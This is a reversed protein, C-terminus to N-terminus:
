IKLRDVEIGLKEIEEIYAGFIGHVDKHSKGEIIDLISDFIEQKLSFERSVEKITNRRDPSVKIEKIRMLSRFGPLMSKLSDVLLRHLQGANEGVELYSQYLRVLGGKIQQECQLRINDRGINVDKLIDHGYLFINNEKIELFEIPFVDTSRKIHEETLMLPAVIGKKRGASVTKLSRQLDQPDIREFVMLMNVNSRGKIFESSAASGYVYISKLNEGHIQIFRMCYDQIPKRIGENLREINILEAM